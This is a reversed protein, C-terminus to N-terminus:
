AFKYSFQLHLVYKLLANKYIRMSEEDTKGIVFFTAKVNNEKLIDLLEDSYKSPGDDFTLYVKKNETSQELLEEPTLEKTETVDTQTDEAKDETEEASQEEEIEAAYVVQSDEEASKEKKNKLYAKYEENHMEVLSDVQKELKHVKFMMLICCLTPIILLLVVIAVITHKIRNVRKRRYDEKSNHRSDENVAM